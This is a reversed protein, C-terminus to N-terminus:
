QAEVSGLDVRADVRRPKGRQDTANRNTVSDDGADIAPSGPLPPMTQMPGGHDGLAALLPPTAIPKAGVTPAAPHDDMVFSVLNSGSHALVAQQNFIDRGNATSRTGAVISNELIL